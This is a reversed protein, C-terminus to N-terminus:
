RRPGAVVNALPEGAAWREFQARLLRRARPPFATTDGGVHPSVLVGPARWLPHDVPLPEPDTVDLAARLRGSTVEVVLADTDVVPGRAVNVLLAGDPMAALFQADVLGRTADSLPVALVVVDHSPLLAPLEDVGHVHGRADDRARSAVRTLVVEFPAFRDTIAGGVSGSGGVLLVRRDALAPRTGALWTGVTQARAFDGLGRLAAIALGVALEATSSDHVGAATCLTVGAPLHALVDDYGATLTQVVELGEITPLRPLAAGADMYPLVVLEPRAGAPLSEPPLDDDMAWVVVDVPDEGDPWLDVWRDDPVSVVRRPRGAGPTQSPPV